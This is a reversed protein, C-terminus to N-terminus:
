NLVTINWGYTCFQWPWLSTYKCLLPDANWEVMHFMNYYQEYPNQGYLSGVIRVYQGDTLLTDAGPCYCSVLNGSGDDVKFKGGNAYSDSVLGYLAFLEGLKDGLIPSGDPNRGTVAQEYNYAGARQLANMKTPDVTGGGWPPALATRTRPNPVYTNQDFIARNNLARIKNASANTADTPSQFDYEDDVLGTGPDYAVTLKDVAGASNWSEKYWTNWGKDTKFSSNAQARAGMVVNFSTPTWSEEANGVPCTAQGYVPTASYQPTSLVADPYATLIQQWTLMLAEGPLTGVAVLWYGQTLCDWEQWKRCFSGDNPGYGNYGEISWPRYIFQRSNTNNEIRCFLEIQPPQKDFWKPYWEKAITNGLNDKVVDNEGGRYDHITWYKMTTIQSLPVGNYKDTGLWCQGPTNNPASGSGNQGCDMFYSGSPSPGPNGKCVLAYTSLGGNAGYINANRWGSQTGDLVTIANYTPVALVSSGLMAVAVAIMLFRAAAISSTKM